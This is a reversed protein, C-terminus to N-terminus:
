VGALHNAHRVRKLAVVSQALGVGLRRPRPRARQNHPPGARRRTMVRTLRREVLVQPSPVDGRDGLDVGAGERAVDPHMSRQPGDEDMLGLSRGLRTQGLEGEGGSAYRREGLLIQDGLRRSCRLLLPEVRQRGLEPRSPSGVAVPQEDRDDVVADLGVDQTGKALAAAADEHQRVGRRPSVDSGGIRIAEDQRVARAVRRNELPRDLQRLLREAPDRQEPDTETVLDEAAGGPRGGRTKRVTVVAGVMGHLVEVGPTDMDRALVVLELDDRGRDRAAVEVDRLAVQVIGRDFAKAVACQGGEADLVVGFATGAGLVVLVQVVTKQLHDSVAGRQHPRDCAHLLLRPRAPDQDEARARNDDALGRLEVVGSRLGALRKAFFADLGDEDVGVGGRDHGVFLDGVADVELREGDLRDLLDDFPLPRVRKQRRQAPLRAEVEGGVKGVGAHEGAVAHTQEAGRDVGDAFGFVPLGELLHELVDALRHRHRLDAIEQSLDCVEGGGVAQRQDNARRVREAPCPAPKDGRLRVELADGRAPERRRRDVLHQDLPRQPTPLLDLVLDHAICCVGADRDAVHFVEVRHADVRAVRDHDRGRLREGVTVM